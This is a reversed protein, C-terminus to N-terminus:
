QVAGDDESWSETKAYNAIQVDTKGPFMIALLEKRDNLEGRMRAVLKTADIVNTASPSKVDLGAMGVGILKALVAETSMRIGFFKAHRMASDRPLDWHSEVFSLAYGQRLKQEIQVKEAHKCISCRRKHQATGNQNQNGPMIGVM